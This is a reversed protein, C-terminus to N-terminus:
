SRRKLGLNNITIAIGPPLKAGFFSAETFNTTETVTAQSLDAGEFNCGRCDAASLDAYRLNANSFDSGGVVARSFNAEQFNANRWDRCLNWERSYDAFQAQAPPPADEGRRDRLPTINPVQSRMAQEFEERIRILEPIVADTLDVPHQKHLDEMVRGIDLDRQRIAPPDAESKQRNSRDMRRRAIFRQRAMYFSPESKKKDSPAQERPANGLEGFQESM